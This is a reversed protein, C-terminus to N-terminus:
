GHMQLDKSVREWLHFLRVINLRELFAPVTIFFQIVYLFWILSSKATGYKSIKIIKWYFINGVKNRKTLLPFLRPPHNSWFFQFDEIKQQRIQLNESGYSYETIFIKDPSHSERFTFSTSLNSRWYVYCFDNKIFLKWFKILNERYSQKWAHYMSSTWTVSSFM